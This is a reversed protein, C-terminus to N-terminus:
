PTLKYIICGKRYKNNLKIGVDRGAKVEDFSVHDIEMSEIKDYNYKKGCEVILKDERKVDNELPIVAVNIRNYFNIVEGIRIKKMVNYVENLSENFIQIIFNLYKECYEKVDIYQDYLSPDTLIVLAKLGNKALGEKDSAEGRIEHLGRDPALEDVLVGTMPDVPMMIKEPGDLGLQVIVVHIAHRHQIIDRFEILEEFSSYAKHEYIIKHIIENEHNILDKFARNNLERKYQNLRSEYFYCLIWTLNDGLTKITSIFHYVHHNLLFWSDNDVNSNKYVDCIRNYSFFLQKFREMAGHSYEQLEQLYNHDVEEKIVVEWIRNLSNVKQKILNYYYAELNLTVIANKGYELKNWKRVSYYIDKEVLKDELIKRSVNNSIFVNLISELSNEAIVSLRSKLEKKIRDLSKVENEDELNINVEVSYFSRRSMWTENLIIFINFGPGDGEVKIDYIEPLITKLYEVIEKKDLAFKKIVEILSYYSLLNLFYTLALM